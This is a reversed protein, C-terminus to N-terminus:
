LISYLYQLEAKFKEVKRRISFKQGGIQYQGGEELLPLPIGTLNSIIGEQGYDSLVAIHEEIAPTPFLGQYRDAIDVIKQLFGIRGSKRIDEQAEQIVIAQVAPRKKTGARDQWVCFEGASYSLMRLTRELARVAAQDLRVPIILADAAVWALHTGGSFFPSTDILIKEAFTKEQQEQIITDLLNLMQYTPNVQIPAAPGLSENLRSYLHIPFLSLKESGPILYSTRSSFFHENYGKVIRCLNNEQVQWGRGMMKRMFADVITPKEETDKQLLRQTLDCQPSLDIFLSSIDRSFLYALNYALTTKGVGGCFNTIAYTQHDPMASSPLDGAKLTRFRECIENLQATIRPPNQQAM